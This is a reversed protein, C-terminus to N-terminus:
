PEWFDRRGTLPRLLRRSLNEAPMELTARLVSGESVIKLSKLFDEERGHRERQMSQLGILGDAIRALNSATEASDTHLVASLKLLSGQETVQLVAAGTKKLITSAREGDALSSLNETAAVLFADAPADKFRALLPADVASKRKGDLVDLVM